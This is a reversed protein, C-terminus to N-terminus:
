LDILKSHYISVKISNWRNYVYVPLGKPKIVARAKEFKRFRMKRGLRHDKRFALNLLTLLRKSLIFHDKWANGVVEVVAWCGKWQLENCLLNLIDAFSKRCYEANDTLHFRM